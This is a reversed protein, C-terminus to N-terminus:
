PVILENSDDWWCWLEAGEESSYSGAPQGKPHYAYGWKEYTVGGATYSGSVVFEELGGQARSGEGSWGAPIQMLLAGGGTVTNRCGWKISVGAWPGDTVPEWPLAKMDKRENWEVPWTKHEDTMEELHEGPGDHRYITLEGSMRQISTAGEPDPITAPGHLIGPPRYMFDGVDLRNTPFKSAGALKYSEEVFPHWDLLTDHWGPPLHMLYTTMGPVSRYVKWVPGPVNGYDSSALPTWEMGWYPAPISIPADPDGVNKLEDPV